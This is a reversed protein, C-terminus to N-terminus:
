MEDRRGVAEGSSIRDCNWFAMLERGAMLSLSLIHIEQSLVSIMRPSKVPVTLFATSALTPWRTWKLIM